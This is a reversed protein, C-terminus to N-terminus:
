LVRPNMEVEWTPPAVSLGRENYFPDQATLHAWTDLFYQYEDWDMKAERSKSEFHYLEARPEYVCRFQRERLKLCYDIDNFSVALAETYGGVAAYISRRTMMCAGTVGLYNRPACTSFFYGLDDRQFLRRVHDPSGFNHVVGVHQIHNDPYLLKAGVVGVNAKEFHDLMRELWDPAAIEIDDNLLVLLDGGAISAGLNLKKAVNFKPETYTIRKAAHKQISASATDTLDGNDVVVFEINRYTSQEAISALCNALLDIKRGELDISMSATPIVISIKPSASRVLNVKYAANDGIPQIEGSRGTRHLRGRLAEINMRHDRATLVDGDRRHHVIKSVHCIKGAAETARLAVDYQNSIDISVPLKEKRIAAAEDIYNYAELYDPSWDPKFFPNHREGKDDLHDHDGYILDIDPEINLANAFEYLATERLVSGANLFIVFEGPVDALDDVQLTQVNTGRQGSFEGSDGGFIYIGAAPYIQRKVSAVTEAPDLKGNSLIVASFQPRETMIDMHAILQDREHRAVLEDSVLWERYSRVEGRSSMKSPLSIWPLRVLLSRYVCAWRGSPLQVEVRLMHAGAATKVEMEFGLLGVFKGFKANAAEADRRRVRNPELTEGRYLIRVNARSLTKTDVAWGAIQVPRRAYNIARPKPRDIVCYIGEEGAIQTAGLRKM